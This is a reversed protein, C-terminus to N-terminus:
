VRVDREIGYCVSYYPCAKCSAHTEDAWMPRKPPRQKDIASKVKLCEDLIDEIFLRNFKIEFEKPYATIFKPDYIYIIEKRDYCFCYVMGQRLHSPFPRRIGSWLAYWDVGTHTKGDEDTHTYTYREQLKPAEIRITGTGITKIEILVSGGERVVDGDANGFLLYEENKVPVEAYYLLNRGVECRQCFQPSQDWWRLDCNLCAFVGKLLGMDWFWHQWKRHADHGTEFAMEFALKRPQIEAPTGIIRYYTSRPCWGEHSAESPHICDSRRDTDEETKMLHRAVGSVLKDKDRYTAGLIKSLDTTM